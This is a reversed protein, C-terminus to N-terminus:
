GGAGTAFAVAHRGPERYLMYRPGVARDLAAPDLWAPGGVAETGAATLPIPLAGSGPPPTGRGVFDVGQHLLRRLNRAGIRRYSMTEGELGPVIARVVQVGPHAPPSFDAYLVDFGATHLRDIVLTCRTAPDDASGPPVTPLTDLPVKESVRFVTDDLVARQAAYPMRTWAIMAALARPEEHALSYHARYRDLYIAPAIREVPALPGHSFLYRARAAAFETVAKRVAADRDPHVAEGGAAMAFGTPLGPTRDYGACYVNAMGFDTAAVKLVVEVGAADLRDLVLRADPDRVTALDIATGGALARYHVSNGDRQLLELLGHAMARARSDGAGLGNTIPVALYERDTPLGDGTIAVFEAPAFVTEGTAWRTVPLWDLPMDPTYPSGASLCLAVPDIVGREGLANVLDRYTARRPTARLIAAIAHVGETMEGYAGTRAEAATVGYGQGGGDPGTEGGAGSGRYLLASWTPVGVRDLLDIAFEIMEGPPLAAAYAAVAATQPIPAAAAPTESISM